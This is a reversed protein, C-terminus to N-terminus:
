YKALYSQLIELEKRMNEQAQTNYKDHFYPTAFVLKWLTNKLFESRWMHYDQDNYCSYEQRVQTMYKQYVHWPTWIISMDIDMMYAAVKDWSGVSHNATLNILRVVQDITQTDFWLEKLTNQALQASEAENQAQQSPVKYISDHFLISLFIEKFGQEDLHSKVTYLHNLCAVIHFWNHYAREPSDHMSKLMHYTKLFKDWINLKEFMSQIRLEGYIDVNSVMQLFLAEIEESNDGNNEINLLSGYKDSQINSQLIAQKKESSYQSNIRRQIEDNDHWRWKLRDSQVQEDVWILLTNNNMLNTNGSEALLAGNLLIIWKKGIMEQRIQLQLPTKLIEDLRNRKEPDGFVIPWLIKRDIFGDSQMIEPGFEQALEERAKKYGPETWEWLIYHGIKDLDIDFVPINYKDWLEVFRQTIYSKGSGITGTVGVMYQWMMRAELAHKVNLTTYDTINWQDKLVGKTMSSSIHSKTQDAILLVTEIDLKQTEGAQHLSKEYEFDSSSRLWKIITDVNQKYSFDVLLGSFARVQINLANEIDSKIARDIMDVREPFSFMYKKDPNQGVWVLLTDTQRASREIMDLHWKTIPDFSGPYISKKM